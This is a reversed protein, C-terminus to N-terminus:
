SKVIHYTEVLNCWIVGWLFVNKKTASPPIWDATDNAFRLVDSIWLITDFHLSTAVSDRLPTRAMLVVESWCRIICACKVVGVGFNDNRRIVSYIILVFINLLLRDCGTVLVQILIM